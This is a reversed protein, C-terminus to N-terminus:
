LLVTGICYFATSGAPLMALPFFAPWLCPEGADWGWFQASSRLSM